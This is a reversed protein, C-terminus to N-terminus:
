EAAEKSVRRATVCYWGQREEIRDVSFGATQLGQVLQTPALRPHRDAEGPLLEVVVLAGDVKMVRAIQGLVLALDRVEHLVLTAVAVDISADEFPLAEAWGQVVTLNTLGKQSALQTLSTARGPHPELAIVEHAWRAAELAWLGGGSGIDLVRSRHPPMLPSLVEQPSFPSQRGFQDLALSEIASM